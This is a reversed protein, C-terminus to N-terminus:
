LRAERQLAVVCAVSIFGVCVIVTYIKMFTLLDVWVDANTVPSVRDIDASSRM